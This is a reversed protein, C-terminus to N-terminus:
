STILVYRDITKTLTRRTAELDTCKGTLLNFEEELTQRIQKESQLESKAKSIKETFLKNDEVKKKVVGSLESQLQNLEQQNSNTSIYLSKQLEQINHLHKQVEADHSKTLSTINEKLSDVEAKLKCKFQEAQGMQDTLCSNEETVTSLQLELAQIHSDREVQTNHTVQEYDEQLRSNIEQLEKVQAGLATIVQEYSQKQEELQSVRATMSEEREVVVRKERELDEVTQEMEKKMQSREMELRDKETVIDATKQYLNAKEEILQKVREEFSILKESMQGQDQERVSKFYDIEKMLQSNEVMLSTVHREKQILVDKSNEVEQQLKELQAKLASETEELLSKEKLVDEEAEKLKDNLEVVTLNLKEKEETIGRLKNEMDGTEVSLTELQNQKGALSSHMETISVQLEAVKCFLEHKERGICELEKKLEVNENKTETEKEIISEITCEQSQKLEAYERELSEVNLRLIAEKEELTSVTGQYNLLTEEKETVLRQLNENEDRLQQLNAELVKLDKEKTDRLRRVEEESQKRVDTIDTSLKEVTDKLERCQQSSQEVEKKLIENEEVLFMEKKELDIIQDAHGRITRQHVEEEEKLQRKLSEEVEQIKEKLQEVEKEYGESEDKLHQMEIRAGVLQVDLDTILNEKEKIFQKMNISEKEKGDLQSTLKEVEEQLLFCM